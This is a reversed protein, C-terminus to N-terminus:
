SARRSRRWASTPLSRCPLWCRPTTMFPPTTPNYAGVIARRKQEDRGTLFMVLDAAAEPTDSYKSVALNWGGLTGTAEGGPGSPLPAVGVLGRVPSDESQALAWAYPWNRM